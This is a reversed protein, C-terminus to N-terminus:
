VPGGDVTVIRVDYLRRLDVDRASHFIQSPVGVDFAIVEDLALVAIRHRPPAKAPGTPRDDCAEASETM